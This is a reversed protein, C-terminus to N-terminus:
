PEGPGEAPSEAPGDAAGDPSGGAAAGTAAGAAADLSETIVRHMIRALREPGLEPATRAMREAIEREREPDRGAHGPVAKVAQVAATLRAREGLLEALRDDVGDIRRRLAQLSGPDPWRLELDPQQEENGDPGTGDTRRVEVFGHREYFRRAGHNTEFVWLGLGDPRLSRAVELLVSGVGEGTRDPAVYLSHLWDQEVLLLGLVATGEEALWVETAPDAAAEVRGRLWRRVSDFPHVPRPIAPYSAERAAWFLEALADADEVTAPRVTLESPM